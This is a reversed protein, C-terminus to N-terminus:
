LACSLGSGCCDRCFARCASSVRSSLVMLAVRFNCLSLVFVDSLWMCVCVRLRCDHRFFM